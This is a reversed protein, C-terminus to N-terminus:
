CEFWLRRHKAHTRRHKSSHGSKEGKEVAPIPAPPSSQEKVEPEISALSLLEEKPEIQISPLLLPEEKPEPPLQAPPLYEGDLEPQLSTEEVSEPQDPALQSSIEILEMSLPAPLVLQEEPQPQTSVSLISEEHLESQMPGPLLFLDIGTESQQPLLQLLEEKWPEPHVCVQPLFLEDSKPQVISSSLSEEKPEKVEVHLQTSALPEESPEPELHVSTPLLLEANAQIAPPLSEEISKSWSAGLLVSQDQKTEPMVSTPLSRDENNEAREPARLLFESEPQLLLLGGEPEPQMQDMHLMEVDPELPVSVLPLLASEEIMYVNAPLAKEEDPNRQAAELGDVNNGSDCEEVATVESAAAASMPNPPKSRLRIILRPRPVPEVPTPAKTEPNKRPRGRGRRIPPAPSASSDMVHHPSKPWPPLLMLGGVASGSTTATTMKPPRGRRRPIQPGANKQRFSSRRPNPNPHHNPTPIPYHHPLPLLTPSPPTLPLAFRNPSLMSVDGAAVFKGLYYPLLRSHGPPLRTYNSQIYRSISAETSGGEEALERLAVRVMEAYPPHDPTPPRPRPAAVNSPLHAEGEERKAEM